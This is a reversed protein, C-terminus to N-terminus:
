LWIRFVQECPVRQRQVKTIVLRTEQEASQSVMEGYGLCM